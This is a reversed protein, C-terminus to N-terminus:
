FLTFVSVLLSRSICINVYWEISTELVYLLGTKPLLGSVITKQKLTVTSTKNDSAVGSGVNDVEYECGTRDSECVSCDCVRDGRIWTEVLLPKHLAPAVLMAYLDKGYDRSKAFSTFEMGRKSVLRAIKYPPDDIRNQNVTADYLDTLSPTLDHPMHYDYFSPGNTQIQRGVTNIESLSLSICLMSQGFRKGSDPYSYSEGYPPPYRPVSHILWFGGSSDYGLVGKSHALDKDTGDPFEDNYMAYGVTDASSGYIQSLTYGPASRSSDISQTPSYLSDGQGSDYYM